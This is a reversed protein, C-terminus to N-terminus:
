GPRLYPPHTVDTELTSLVYEGFFPVVTTPKGDPAMLYYAM